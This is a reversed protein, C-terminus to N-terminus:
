IATATSSASCVKEPDLTCLVFEQAESSGEILDDDSDEIEDDSGADPKPGMQRRRKMRGQTIPMDDEDDVLSESEDSNPGHLMDSGDDYESDSGSKRAPESIKKEVKRYYVATEAVLCFEAWATLDYCKVFARGSLSKRIVVAERVM